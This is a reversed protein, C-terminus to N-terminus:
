NRKLTKRRRTKRPKKSRRRKGGDHVNDTTISGKVIIYKEFTEDNISLYGYSTNWDIAGDKKDVFITYPTGVRLTYMYTKKINPKMPDPHDYVTIDISKTTTADLFPDIERVMGSITIETKLPSTINLDMKPIKVTPTEPNVLRKDSDIGYIKLNLENPLLAHITKIDISESM